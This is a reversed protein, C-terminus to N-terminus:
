PPESATLRYLLHIGADWGRRQFENLLMAVDFDDLSRVMRVWEPMPDRAM